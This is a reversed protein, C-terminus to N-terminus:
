AKRRETLIPVVQRARARIQQLAPSDASMTAKESVFGLDSGHGVAELATLVALTFDPGFRSLASLYATDSGSLFMYWINNEAQKLRLRATASLLGTHAPTLQPLLRILAFVAVTGAEWDKDQASDGPILHDPLQGIWRPIDAVTGFDMRGVLTALTQKVEERLTQEEKTPANRVVLRALPLLPPMTDLLLLTRVCARQLPVSESTSLQQSLLRKQNASLHAHEAGTQSNLLAILLKQLAERGESDATFHPYVELLPGITAHTAVETLAALIEQRSQQRRRSEGVEAVGIASLGGIFVVLAAITPLLTHPLVFTMANLVMGIVWVLAICVFIRRTQQRREVLKNILPAWAPTASRDDDANMIGDWEALYGRGRERVQEEITDGSKRRVFRQIAKRSDADGVMALGHLIAGVFEPSRSAQRPTLYRALRACDEKSLRNAGDPDLNTLRITLAARVEQRVERDPFGLAQILPRLVRKDDYGMLLRIANRHRAIVGQLPFLIGVGYILPVASLVVTFPLIDISFGIGILDVGMLLLVIGTVTHATLNKTPVSDLSNQSKGTRGKVVELLSTVKDEDTAGSPLTPNSGAQRTAMSDLLDRVPQLKRLDM